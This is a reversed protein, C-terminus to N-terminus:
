KAPMRKAFVLLRQDTTGPPWCTQLVITEQPYKTEYLFSVDGPDTITQHTVHYEYRTGDHWIFIEDGTQLKGLLYFVANFQSKFDPHSSHAFYYGLGPNDPFATGSAHAIGNRLAETYAATNNPDVNFVVPEDLYLTPIVIGYDRHESMGRLDLFNSFDPIIIKALSTTGFLSEFGKITQYKAEVLVVPGLSMLLITAGIGILTASIVQWRAAVHKQFTHWWNHTM